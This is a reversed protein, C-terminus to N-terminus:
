AIFYVAILYDRSAAALEHVQPVQSSSELNHMKRDSSIETQSIARIGRLTMIPTAPLVSIYM